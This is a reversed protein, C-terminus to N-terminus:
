CSSPSSDALFFSALEGCTQSSSEVVNELFDEREVNPLASSVEDVDLLGDRAFKLVNRLHQPNANALRYEAKSVFVM